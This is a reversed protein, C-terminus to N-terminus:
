HDECVYKYWQQWLEPERAELRRDWSGDIEIGTQEDLAIAGGLLSAKQTKIDKSKLRAVDAAKLQVVLHKPNGLRKKAEKVFAELQKRQLPQQQLAERTQELVGQICAEHFAWIRRQQEAELDRESRNRTRQLRAHSAQTQDQIERDLMQRSETELQEIRSQGESDIEQLRQQLRADIEAFLRELTDQSM